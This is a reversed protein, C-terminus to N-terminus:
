ASSKRRMLHLDAQAKAQSYTWDADTMCSPTCWKRTSRGVIPNGCVQCIHAKRYGCAKNADPVYAVGGRIMEVAQREQCEALLPCHLCGTVAESCPLCPGVLLSHDAHNLDWKWADRGVCPPAKTRM